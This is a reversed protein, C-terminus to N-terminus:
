AWARFHAAQSDSLEGITIAAHMLRDDGAPMRCIEVAGLAAKYFDIAKAAGKVVLHPILGNKDSM